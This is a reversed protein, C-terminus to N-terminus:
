NEVSYFYEIIDNWKWDEKLNHITVTQPFISKGKSPEYRILRPDDYILCRESIWNDNMGNVMLAWALWVDEAHNKLIKKSFKLNGITKAYRTSLVAIMGTAYQKLESGSNITIMHGYYLNETYQPFPRLNLALNKLNIFSDDDTKVIYDYEKMSNNESKILNETVWKFYYYTKGDNLNEDDDLIIIDQFAEREIKFKLEELDSNNSK